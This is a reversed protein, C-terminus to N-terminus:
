PSQQATIEQLTLGDSEVVCRAIMTDQANFANRASFKMFVSYRGDPMRDVKPPATFSHFEVSSPISASTRIAQRCTERADSEVDAASPATPQRREAAPARPREAAPRLLSAAVLLVVLVLCAFAIRLRPTM